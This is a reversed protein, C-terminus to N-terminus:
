CLADPRGGGRRAKRIKTRAVLSRVCQAAASSRGLMPPPKM